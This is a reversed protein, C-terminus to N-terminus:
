PRPSAKKADLQQMIRRATVPSLVGGVDINENFEEKLRQDLAKVHPTKMCDGQDQEKSLYYSIDEPLYGSTVGLIFDVVQDVNDPELKIAALEPNLQKLGAVLDRTFTLYKEKEAPTSCDSFCFANGNYTVGCELRVIDFAVETDAATAGGPMKYDASLGTLGTKVELNRMPRIPNLLMLAVDRVDKDSLNSHNRRILGIIKNELSM